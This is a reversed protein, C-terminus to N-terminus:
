YPTGKGLLTVRLQKQVSPYLCWSEAEELSVSKASLVNLRRCEAEKDDKSLALGGPQFPDRFADLVTKTSLASHGMGLWEMEAHCLTDIFAIVDSDLMTQYKPNEADPREFSSNGHWTSGDQSILAGSLVADPFSSLGLAKAIPQLCSAPDHALAEYTMWHFGSANSFRMVYAVSKRWCRLIHLVSLGANAYTSGRGGHISAVVARPDRIILVVPMGQKLFVPIYEECFVEKSGAYQVAPKQFVGPFHLASRQIIETLTGGQTPLDLAAPTLQGSYEHMREFVASVKADSLHHSTAFDLFAQRSYDQEGCLHGLPYRPISIDLHTYFDEKVAQYLFPFPQSAAVMQPHNHFYKELLTTGSRLFGTIFFPTM